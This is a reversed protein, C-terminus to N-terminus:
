RLGTTTWCGATAASNRILPIEEQDQRFYHASDSTYGYPALGSLCMGEYLSAYKAALQRRTEQMAKNCEALAILRQGAEEAKKAAYFLVSM